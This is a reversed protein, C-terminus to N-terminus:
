QIYGRHVGDVAGHEMYQLKDELPKYWHIRYEKYQSNLWFRITQKATSPNRCM